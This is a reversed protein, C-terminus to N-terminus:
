TPQIFSPTPTTIPPTPEFKGYLLVEGNVIAALRLSPDYGNVSYVATGPDLLTADGARIVQPHAGNVTVTYEEGIEIFDLPVDTVVIPYDQPCALALRYHTVLVNVASPGAPQFEYGNFETCYAGELMGSTVRLAYHVPSSETEILEVREVQSELPVFLRLPKSPVTFISVVEGNVTLTYMEGPQLGDPITLTLWLEELEERCGNDWPLPPPELLTVKVAIEAGRVEVDRKSDDLSAYIHRRGEAGQRSSYWRLECNPVVSRYLAFTVQHEPPTRATGHLDYRAWIIQAPTEVWEHRLREWDGDLQAALEPPPEVLSMHIDVRAANGPSNGEFGGGGRFALRGDVEIILATVAYSRDPNDHPTYELDYAIPVQGPNTITQTTVIPSPVGSLRDFESLRVELTAGPTLPIKEAYTVTGSVRGREVPAEAAVTAPPGAAPEDECAVAAFPLLAAIAIAATLLRAHRKM